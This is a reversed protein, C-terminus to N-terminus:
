WLLGRGAHTYKTKSVGHGNGVGAIDGGLEDCASPVDVIGIAHRFLDFAFAHDALLGRKLGAFAEFVGAAAAQAGGGAGHMPLVVAHGIIARWKVRINGHKYEIRQAVVAPPRRQM